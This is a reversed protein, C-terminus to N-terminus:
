VHPPVVPIPHDDGDTASLKGSCVYDLASGQSRDEGLLDGVLDATSNTVSGIQSGVSVARSQCDFTVKEVMRGTEDVLAVSATKRGAGASGISGKDVYIPHGLSDRGIVIWHGSYSQADEQLQAAEKFKPPGSCAVACACLGAIAIRYAAHRM